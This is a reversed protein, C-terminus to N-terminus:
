MNLVDKVKTKFEADISVKLNNITKPNCLKVHRKNEINVEMKAKILTKKIKM